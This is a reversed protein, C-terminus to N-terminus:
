CYTSGVINYLKVAAKSNRTLVSFVDDFNNELSFSIVAWHTRVVTEM